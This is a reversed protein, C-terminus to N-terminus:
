SGLLLKPTSHPTSMSLDRRICKEGVSHAMVKLERHESEKKEPKEVNSSCMKVLLAQFITATIGLVNISPM